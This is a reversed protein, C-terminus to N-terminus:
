TINNLQKSITYVWEKQKNHIPPLPHYYAWNTNPKLIGIPNKINCTCIAKLALTKLDTSVGWGFIVTTNNVWLNKFDNIRKTDFISHSIGKTDMIKIKNYFIGSKPERLDSLNLVRAYKYNGSLMIQMIQNQTNDPKALTIKRENDNKNLPASSGPNMMVVMLDPQKSNTNLKKINLYKRFSYGGEQYYYGTIKFLSKM